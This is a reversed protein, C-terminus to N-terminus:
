IPECYINLSYGKRREVEMKERKKGERHTVSLREAWGPGGLALVWYNAGKEKKKYMMSGRILFKTEEKKVKREGIIWGWRRCKGL